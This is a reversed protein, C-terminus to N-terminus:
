KRLKQLVTIYIQLCQLPLFGTYSIKVFFILEM